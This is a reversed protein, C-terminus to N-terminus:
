RKVPSAQGVIYTESLWAAIEKSDFNCQHSPFKTSFAKWLDMATPQLLAALVRMQGPEWVTLQNGGNEFHMTLTVRSNPVDKIRLFVRYTTYWIGTDENICDANYCHWWFNHTASTHISTGDTKFGTAPPLWAKILPILEESWHMAIETFTAVRVDHLPM